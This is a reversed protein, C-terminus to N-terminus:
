PMNKELYKSRAAMMRDWVGTKYQLVREHYTGKTTAMASDMLNNWRNTRGPTLLYRYAIERSLLNYKDSRRVEKPYNNLDFKVNELEQYLQKMLMAATGYYRLFFEDILDDSNLTPDDALKLTLYLELQSLLFSYSMSESDM